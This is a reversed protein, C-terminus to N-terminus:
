VQLQDETDPEEEFDYTVIENLFKLCYGTIKNNTKEEILIKVLAKSVNPADLINSMNDFNSDNFQTFHCMLKLVSSIIIEKEKQSCLFSNILRSLGHDIEKEQNKGILYIWKRDDMEILICSLADFIEVSIILESGFPFYQNFLELLKTVISINGSHLLRAVNGQFNHGHWVYELFEDPEMVDYNNMENDYDETERLETYIISFREIIKVAFTWDREPGNVAIELAESINTPTSLDAVSLTSSIIANNRLTTELLIMREQIESIALGINQAACRLASAEQLTDHDCLSTRQIVTVLSISKDLVKSASLPSVESKLENLAALISAADSEDVSGSKPFKM